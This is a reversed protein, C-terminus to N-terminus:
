RRSKGRVLFVSFKCMTRASIFGRLLDTKGETLLKQM